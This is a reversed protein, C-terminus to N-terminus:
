LFKHELQCEEQILMQLLVGVISLQTDIDVDELNQVLQVLQFDQEIQVKFLEQVKLIQTKMQDTKYTKDEVRM